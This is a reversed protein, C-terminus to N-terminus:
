YRTTYAVAPDLDLNDHVRELAIRSFDLYDFTEAAKYWRRFFLNTPWGRVLFPPIFSHDVKRLLPSIRNTRNRLLNRYILSSVPLFLHASLDFPLM